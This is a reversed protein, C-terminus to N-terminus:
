EFTIRLRKPQFGLARLHELVEDPVKASSVIVDTVGHSDRLEVIRRRDHIPFGQIKRGIKFEDDDIFGVPAFGYAPNNLLERILIEGGDGAGYIVVPRDGSQARGNGALLRPILRFSMRSASLLLILFLFHLVFVARSPGLGRRSGFVIAACAATGLLSGWVIRLLDPVGAYRWLGSYVGTALLSLTQIVIVYPLSAMLIDWQQEPIAEEFRLWYAGYYALTILVVDFGIEVVRRKYSFGTLASLVPHGSPPAEGASYVRIRGLHVGLLLFAVAFLPVVFFLSEVRVIRLLLALSGSAIALGYLTLVAKQESLGMAVLRHSSHDRGGQSAPRGAAKRTVTVLTTDFIPILLMLVPGLLVAALNRSRGATSLLATAALVFGLFTSGCDGMFISANRFNFVLFGGVAGAFAAAVVAMEQQGNLWFTVALFSAAITAIGGALGDMNDLLNLANTIGVMWFISVVVDLPAIGSWKLVVGASVVLGAVAIHVVLRVFPKLGRLDDMLGLLAMVTGGLMVAPMREDGSPFLLFALLFALYIAIGGLMATPKTHWRDVRPPAVVGAQRAFGRVAITLVLGVVFTLLSAAFFKQMM